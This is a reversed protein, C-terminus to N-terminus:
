ITTPEIVFISAAAAATTAALRSEAPGTADYGATAEDAATAV